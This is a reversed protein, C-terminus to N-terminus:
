EVHSDIRINPEIDGGKWEFAGLQAGGGYVCEFVKTPLLETDDDYIILHYPTCNGFYFYRVREDKHNILHAGATVDVPIWGYPEFYVQAWSHQAHDGDPQVRWGGQSRAPIKNIRCLSIFLNSKAGCDGRKYKATYEANDGLVPKPDTWIVNKCIWQYINKAKLYDNTENGVIEKSLNKLYPTFLNSETEETYKQYDQDSTNYPQINAASVNKYYGKSEYEYIFQCIFTSDSISAPNKMPRIWSQSPKTFYKRWKTNSNNKKDMVKEFYIMSTLNDSKPLEISDISSHVIRINSQFKNERVYPIWAKLLTQDPLSGIEQFFSFAVKIHKSSISDNEFSTITELPYQSVDSDKKEPIKARRAAEKNVKFLDFICNSFYKKEGGILYYELSYDSEWKNMDVESLDPIRVKLEKCVSDYSLTYERRVAQIDNLNKQLIKVENPSLKAKNQLKLDIIRIAKSFEGNQVLQNLNETENNCSVILAIVMASFTLIKRM